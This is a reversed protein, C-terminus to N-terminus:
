YRRARVRETGLTVVTGSVSRAATYVGVVDLDKPSQIVLFGDVFAGQGLHQLRYVMECNITMAGDSDLSTRQFASIRGQELSEALAVKFRFGTRRESPNHVNVSTVYVGSVVANAYPYDTVKPKGCIVKVAYERGCGSGDLVIKRVGQAKVQDAVYLEKCDGSVAIGRPMAFRADQGPGDVYGQGAAYGGGAVTSVDGSPTIKRIEFNLTDAVYVNGLADVTLKEPDYFQASAGPGDAAGIVGSGALTSVMGAQTIKRIREGNSEAVYVNDASDVAVGSPGDFQATLAPGNASGAVGTGALTTVVGAPSIKRIRQNVTDAIYVNGIADAAVGSPSSFKAATGTADHYGATGSGAFTSVVCSPTIKRVVYMGPEVVFLNGAGDRAVDVLDVFTSTLCPGDATGAVSAGALTSVSGTPTIVRVRFNAADGVYVNGDDDVAAGGPNDFKAASGSGNAFGAVGAGALTSVTAAQVAGGFLTAAVCISGLRAMGAVRM